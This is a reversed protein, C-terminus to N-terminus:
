ILRFIVFIWYGTRCNGYGLVLYWLPGNTRIISLTRQFVWVVRVGGWFWRMGYGLGCKLKNLVNRDGWFVAFALYCVGLGSICQDM